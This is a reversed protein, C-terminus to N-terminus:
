SQLTLVQSKIDLIYNTLRKEKGRENEDEEEKEWM